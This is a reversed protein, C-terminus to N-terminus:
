RIPRLGRPLVPCARPTTPAPRLTGCVPPTAPPPTLVGPRRKRLAALKPAIFRRCFPREPDTRYYDRYEPPSPRFAVFPYVRTVLPEAFDHALRSLTTTFAAEDEASFAYVASRYRHRLAHAKTAAHTELHVGILDEATLAAPDYHVIVAESFADHPPEAAVWGQEVRRVGRLFVFVGETCWHCGGGLAIKHLVISGDSPM